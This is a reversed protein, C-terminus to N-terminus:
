PQVGEVAALAAVIERGAALWAGADGHGARLARAADREAAVARALRLLAALTLAAQEQDGNAAGAILQEMRDYNM